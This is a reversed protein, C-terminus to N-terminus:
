YSGSAANHLEIRLGDYAGDETEYGKGEISVQIPEPGTINDGSKTEYLFNPIVIGLRYVDSSAGITDLTEISMSMSAFSPAFGPGNATGYFRTVEDNTEFYFVFSAGIEAKLAEPERIFQGTSGVAAREGNLANGFNLNFERCYGVEVGDIFVSGSGYAFPTIFTYAPTTGSGAIEMDAKTIVGITCVCIEDPVFAIGLSNIKAGGWKEYHTQKDIEATFSEIDTDSISFLHRYALGPTLTEVPGESGLALKLILGMNSGDAEFAFDGASRWGVIVPKRPQRSGTIGLRPATKKETQLSENRIPLFVTPDVKTAWSSEKGIGFTSLLGIKARAM